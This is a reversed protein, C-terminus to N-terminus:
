IQKHQTSLVEEHHDLSDDRHVLGYIEEPVYISDVSGELVAKQFLEVEGSNRNSQEIFPRILEKLIAEKEDSALFGANRVKEKSVIEETELV